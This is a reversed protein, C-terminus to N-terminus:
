LSDAQNRLSFGRLEPTGEGKYQVMVRHSEGMGQPLILGKIKLVESSYESTEGYLESIVEDLGSAILYTGQACYGITKLGVEDGWKKLSSFNVHATIDQNGVNEYPNETAQHRYYCLLTGQTRERDYYERATYGYDITLLFGELLIDDIERLWDRIGLNIESRYGEPINPLFANFYATLKLSSVRQKIEIYNNMKAGVYVEELGSSMEVLHVPFADLLENSFICGRIGSLESLSSVWKIKDKYESLLRKQNEMMVTNREVITFALSNFFASGRCSDLIDKCLYGAGGGIEVAQFGSPRGTFEWMEALQRGIMIGFVKHLHPSTYFDGKRGIVPEPSMYFGHEPYYLAMEMYNKFTIPGQKKIKDIIIQALPNM